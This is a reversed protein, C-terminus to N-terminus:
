CIRGGRAKFTERVLPWATDRPRGGTHLGVDTFGGCPVEKRAGDAGDGALTAELAQLAM